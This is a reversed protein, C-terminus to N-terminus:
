ARFRFGKWVGERLRCSESQLSHGDGERLMKRSSRRPWHGDFEPSRKKEIVSLPCHRPPLRIASHGLELVLIRGFQRLFAEISYRRLRLLRSPGKQGLSVRCRRPRSIASDGGPVSCLGAGSAACAPNQNNACLNSLYLFVPSYPKYDCANWSTTSSEM